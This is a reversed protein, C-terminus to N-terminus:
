IIPPLTNYSPELGIISIARSCISNLAVIPALKPTYPHTPQNYGKM